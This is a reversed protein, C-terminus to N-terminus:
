EFAALAERCLDETPKKSDLKIIPCVLRKMWQSHLDLSRTPSIEPKANDDVVM